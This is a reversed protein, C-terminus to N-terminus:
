FAISCISTQSYMSVFLYGLGAKCVVLERGHLWNCISLTRFLHWFLGIRYQLMFRPYWISLSHSDESPRPMARTAVLQQYSLPVTLILVVLPTPVRVEEGIGDDDKDFVKLITEPESWSHSSTCSSEGFSSYLMRVVLLLSILCSCHM